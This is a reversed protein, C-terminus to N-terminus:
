ELVEVTQGERLFHHGEVLIQRGELIEPVVAVSDTRFGTAIDTKRAVEGDLYWITSGGIIADNPVYLVNRLTELVFELRVYMGPRTLEPPDPLECTVEFSKSQPAVYPAVRLVRAETQRNDLAPITARVTLSEPDEAFARYYRETIQAKVLLEDLDAITIIPVQSSVLDGTSAHRQVVTGSVPAAIETYALNLQALEYQSKTAEYQGKAQEYSQRSTADNSFLQETRLFTSEAARFAAEAQRLTLRYPEEDLRAVVQGTRVRDGVDVTISTLSGAIRPLVTVMAASEVHGGVTYTRAVDGRVPEVVRVPVRMEEAAAVEQGRSQYWLWAVAALAALVIIYKVAGGITRGSSRTPKEGRARGDGSGPQGSGADEYDRLRDEM